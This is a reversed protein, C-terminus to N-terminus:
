VVRNLKRVTFDTWIGNRWYVDSEIIATAAEESSVDFVLLSSKMDEYGGAVVIVGEALLKDIRELHEVRFPDRKQAAGQVYTAEVAFCPKIEAM